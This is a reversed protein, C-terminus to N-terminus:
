KITELRSNTWHAATLPKLPIEQSLSTPNVIKLDQVLIADLVRHAYYQFSLHYGERLCQYKHVIGTTFQTVTAESYFSNEYLPHSILPQWQIPLLLARGHKIYMWGESSVPIGFVGNGIYPLYQHEKELPPDHLINVNYEAADFYFTALRETMCHQEFAIFFIFLYNKLITCGIEYRLDIM